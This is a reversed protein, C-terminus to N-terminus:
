LEAFEASLYYTKLGARLSRPEQKAALVSKARDHNETEDSLVDFLGMFKNQPRDHVECYYNNVKARKALHASLIQVFHFIGAWQESIFGLLLSLMVNPLM